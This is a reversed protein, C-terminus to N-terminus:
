QDLLKAATDLEAQLSDLCADPTDILATLKRLSAELDAIRAALPDFDTVQEARKNIAVIVADGSCNRPLSLVKRVCERAAHRAPVPRDELALAYTESVAFSRKAATILDQM